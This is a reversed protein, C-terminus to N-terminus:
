EIIPFLLRENEPLYMNEHRILRFEIPEDYSHTNFGLSSALRMLGIYGVSYENQFCIETAAGHDLSSVAKDSQGMGYLETTQGADQETEALATVAAELTENDPAMLAGNAGTALRSAIASSAARSDIDWIETALGHAAAEDLFATIRDSVSDRLPAPRIVIAKETNKAMGAALERGMQADDASVRTGVGAVGSELMVVPVENAIEALATRLEEDAIAAVLLADAGNEVERRLVRAQEAAGGAAPITLFTPREIELEACGQSIGQSLSRWREASEGYLVVSIQATPKAKPASEASVAWVVAGVVAAFLVLFVTIRWQKKM